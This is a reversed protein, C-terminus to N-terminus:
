GILFPGVPKYLLDLITDKLFDPVITATSIDLLSSLTNTKTCKTVVTEGRFAKALFTLAKPAGFAALTGHESILDRVYKVKAGGNCYTKYLKDTYGIGDIEDLISKYMYIPITPIAHGLDNATLVTQIEEMALLADFDDFYAFLDHLIFRLASAGLCTDYATNFEAKKSPLLHEQIIPAFAPYANALGLVGNPILGAFIGKNLVKVANEIDPVPGGLVTAVINDLEPAYTDRLEAAAASALSGGSYGWLAVKADPDIGSFSQSALTARVADLVHKGSAYNALFTGNLGLHDPLVVPWGQELTGQIILWELQTVITGAFGGSDSAFQLAYSPSCNISAADEAIQYSLLKTYDANYPILITAVGAAPDGLANTTRYLIQQTYKINAPILGLTAITSPLDRNKLITGPAASEFGAPNSYFSDESPKLPINRRALDKPSAAPLASVTALLMLTLLSLSTFKM